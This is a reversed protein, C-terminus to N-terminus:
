LPLNFAVSVSGGFTWSSRRLSLDFDSNFGPLLNFDVTSQAEVMNWRGFLGISGPGFNRAYQAFLELFYGKRWTGSSDIRFIPGFPDTENYRVHGLVAPFGVARFLLSCGPGGYSAQTGVLPIWNEAIVDGRAGRNGVFIGDSPNKIRTTFYDYRLGALVSMGRFVTAAVVGDVYWWKNQTKWSFDTPPFNGSEVDASPSNSPVLYWGSGIVSLRQNLTVSQELGLWLGRNAYHQAVGGLGALFADQAGASVSAGQRDEMWGIYFRPGQLGGSLKEGCSSAGGFLGGFSPIGQMGGFLGQANASTGCVVMAFILSLLLVWRARGRRTDM